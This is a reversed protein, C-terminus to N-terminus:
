WSYRRSSVQGEARKHIENMTFCFYSFSRLLLSQNGFLKRGAIPWEAELVGSSCLQVFSGRRSGQSKKRGRAKKPEVLINEVTGITTHRTCVHLSECLSQLGAAGVLCSCSKRSPFSAANGANVNKGDQLGDRVM